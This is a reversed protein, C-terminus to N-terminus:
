APGLNSGPQFQRKIGRAIVLKQIETTGEYIETARQDRYLREVLSPKVFGEGGFVQVGLDVAAHAAETCFLKAQAGLLSIDEGADYARAVQYCLARGASIRTSVEALQFGIGQHDVLPQGFAKRVTARRAAANYSGLAMGLAQAAVTVRGVTLASLATRLAEGPPALMRDDAVWTDFRITCNSTGRMGMKDEPADATVGGDAVEVIFAAIGKRGSGPVTQAFVVYSDSLGGNGIWAKEGRIRWGGRERSAAATMNAPDSGAERESLAFSIAKRERTLANLYKQKQAASGVALVPQAGLQLTAVVGATSACVQALEEMVACFATASAGGGGYEVPLFMGTVGAAHLADVAEGPYRQRGDVDAAHRALTNSVQLAADRWQADKEDLQPSWIVQM